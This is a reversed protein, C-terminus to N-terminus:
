TKRPGRRLCRGPCPKSWRACPPNPPTSPRPEPRIRALRAGAAEMVPGLLRGDNRWDLDLATLSGAALSLPSLGAGKIDAGLTLETGGSLRLALGRIELTETVANVTAALQLDASQLRFMAQLTPDIVTGGLGTM